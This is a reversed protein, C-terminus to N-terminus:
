VVRAIVPVRRLALVIGWTLTAAGAYVIGAKALPSLVLALLTFQLWVVIPYHVLYIGYSCASLKDFVFHHADAFRRFIAFFAFSITGCCLVFSIDSLLRPILPLPLVDDSAPLLAIAALRFAFAALGAALWIPWRRALESDRALFGAEIGYAGLLLGAFFYVAYLLLRSAQFAFPGLTLWREAGLTLELPVYVLASIVLLVLIFATPRQLVGAHRAAYRSPWRRRLAYLGAALADFVLLLWIFWAPGGPWYGLALWARAYALVGPDDATVAYVPYYALPMLLGVVVVFPLGLRVSRDRLFKACGKRQLSPWVFLGSLLFMLAMFFSDTFTALFSFGIWAQADVIAAGFMGSTGPQSQWPVAYALVSHYLVDLLIISTRLYDFSADRARTDALPTSRVISNWGPSFVSGNALESVSM